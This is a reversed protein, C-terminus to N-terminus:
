LICKNHPDRITSTKVWMDRTSLPWPTIIEAKVLGSGQNHEYVINMDKLKDCYDVM